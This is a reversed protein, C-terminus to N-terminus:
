EDSLADPNGTGGSGTLALAPPATIAAIIPLLAAAAIGTRGIMTRRSIGSALLPISAEQMLNKERLEELTLVVLDESVTANLERSAAEAIQQV